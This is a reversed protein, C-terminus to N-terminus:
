VDRRGSAAVIVPLRCSVVGHGEREVGGGEGVGAEPAAEGIDGAAPGGALGVGGEGDGVGGGAVVMPWTAARVAAWAAAAVSAASAAKGAQDVRSGCSRLAMRRRQCSRIGGGALVEGADHGALLALREGLRAALDVIGGAEDLEVGLLGAARVDLAHGRVEPVGLDLEPALGGADGGEDGGPVEGARHDGALGGGGEGGAAGHHDMGRGFGGERREREGLEGLAGATGGPTKLTTVPSAGVM